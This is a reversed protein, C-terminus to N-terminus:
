RIRLNKNTNTKKLFPIFLILVVLSFKIVGAFQAAFMGGRVMNYLFFTYLVSAILSLKRDKMFYLYIVQYFLGYLFAALFGFWGFNIFMEGVWGMDMSTDIDYNTIFGYDIGFKNGYGSIIPKNHWIIRPIFSVFFLFYTYGLKFDWIRPTEHVIVSIVDVYNLREGFTSFLIKRFFDKDFGAVSNFYYEFALIFADSMSEGSWMLMKYIVTFPFIFLFFIVGTVILPILPLKQRLSYIALLLFIPILVREKSGSPLAYLIESIFFLTTLPVWTRRNKNKFCQFFALVLVLFPFQTCINIYQEYLKFGAIRRVNIEYELHSYIGLNILVIRSTWGLVLLAVILLPLKKTDLVYSNLSPIRSLFGYIKAGLRKDIYPFYYGLLFFAFVLIVFNLGDDMWTPHYSVQWFDFPFATMYFASLGYEIFYIIGILVVPIYFKLGRERLIPFFCLIFLILVKFLISLSM